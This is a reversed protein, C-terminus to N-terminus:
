WAKAHRRSSTTNDGLAPPTDPAVRMYALTDAIIAAAAPAAVTGGYYKGTTPRYLSVLV